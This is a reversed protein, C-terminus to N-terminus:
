NKIRKKIPITLIFCTGGISTDKIGIDGGSKNLIGKNVALGVGRPTDTNVLKIGIRRLLYKFFSVNLIPNGNEDKTSYGYKFITDDQIIKDQDDRIGRGNDRISINLFNHDLKEARFIINTAKADISNNVMSNIINLMEGNSLGEGTAYTTLIDMNDYEATIKGVNFSNVSSIINELIEYLSVSGNNHKIYKAGAILNLVSRLRDVALKIKHYHSKAVDDIARNYKDMPCVACSKTISHDKKLDCIGDESNECPYLNAYLDTMLTDILAIPLGMEHNLSETLDRQLTGTLEYKYLSNEAIKTRHSYFLKVFYLLTFSIFYLLTVVITIDLFLKLYKDPSIIFKKNKTTLITNFDSNFLDFYKIDTNIQESTQRLLNDHNVYVRTLYGGCSVEVAKCNVVNCMLSVDDGELKTINTLRNEYNSIVDSYLSFYAYSLFLLVM